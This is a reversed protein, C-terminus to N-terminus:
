CINRCNENGHKGESHMAKLLSKNQREILDVEGNARPWLPIARKNEIGLEDLYEKMEHSVLNSGNDTRLPIIDRYHAHTLKSLLQNNKFWDSALLICALFNVYNILILQERLPLRKQEIKYIGM